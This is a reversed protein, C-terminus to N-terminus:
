ICGNRCTMDGEAGKILKLLSRKYLDGYQTATVKEDRIYAHTTPHGQLVVKGNTVELGKADINGDFILAAQDIMQAVRTSMGKYM